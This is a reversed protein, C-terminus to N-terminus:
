VAHDRVTAWILRGLGFLLALILFCTATGRVADPYVPNEPLVPAAVTVLFKAQRSAELLAAERNAFASTYANRAFEHDIKIREYESLIQVMSSGDGSSLSRTEERIQAELAAIERRLQVVPQADNSVYDTLARLEAKKEALRQQLGAVLGTLSATESAPDIMEHRIQFELLNEKAEALHERSAELERDAVATQATTIEQSLQNIREEARGVMFDNIRRAFEPDFAMTRITIISSDRSMRLDIFERYHDVFDEASADAPLRRLFDTRSSAFHSRLDLAEDLEQLFAASRLYEMVVYGDKISSHGGSGVLPLNISGLAAMASGGGDAVSVYVQSEAQYTEEAFFLFYGNALLTPIVVLWLFGSRALSHLIRGPERLVTWAKSNESRQLM